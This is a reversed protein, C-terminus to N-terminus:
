SSGEPPSVARASTAPSVAADPSRRSVLSIRAGTRYKWAVKLDRYRARNEEQWPKERAQQAADQLRQLALDTAVEDAFQWTDRLRLQAILVDPSATFIATPLDFPALILGHTFALKTDPNLDNVTGQQIHWKFVADNYARSLKAKRALRYKARTQSPFIVLDPDFNKVADMFALSPRALGFPSGVDLFAGIWIGKVAFM